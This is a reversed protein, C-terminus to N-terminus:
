CSAYMGCASECSIFASQSVQSSSLEGLTLVLNALRERLRQNKCKTNNILFCVNTLINSYDSKDASRLCDPLNATKIKQFANAFDYLLNFEVATKRLLQDSDHNIMMLNPFEGRLESYAQHLQYVDTARISDIMEQLNKEIKEYKQEESKFLRPM